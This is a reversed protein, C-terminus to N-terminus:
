DLMVPIGNAWKRRSCTAFNINSQLTCWCYVSDLVTYSVNNHAVTDHKLFSCLEQKRIFIINYRPLIAESNWDLHILLACRLEKLKSASNTLHHSEFVCPWIWSSCPSCKAQMGPPAAHRVHLWGCCHNGINLETCNIVFQQLLHCTKGLNGAHGQSYKWGNGDVFSSHWGTAKGVLRMHFFVYSGSEMSYRCQFSLIIMLTDTRSLGNGNTCILISYCIGHIRVHPMYLCSRTLGNDLLLIIMCIAFSAQM